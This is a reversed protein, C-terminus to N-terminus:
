RSPMKTSLRMMMSTAPRSPWSPTSGAGSATHSPGASSVTELSTAQGQAVTMMGDQQDEFAEPGGAGLRGLRTFLEVHGQPV